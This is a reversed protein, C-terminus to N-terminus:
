SPLSTESKQAEIRAQVKERRIPVLDKDATLRIKVVNEGISRLLLVCSTDGEGIFLREDKKLSLVLNNPMCIVEKRPKQRTTWLVYTFMGVTTFLLSFFLAVPNVGYSQEYWLVFEEM